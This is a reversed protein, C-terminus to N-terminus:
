ARDSEATERPRRPIEVVVTGALLDGLRQSRPTLLVLISGVLYAVPLILLWPRLLSRIFAQGFSARRGQESVVIINLGWKGLSQGTLSECALFYVFFVVVHGLVGAPLDEMSGSYSIGLLVLGANYIGEVMCFDIVLAMVRRGWTATTVTAGSRLSVQRPHRSGRFAALVVMPLLCLCAAGNALYWWTLYMAWPSAEFLREPEAWAGDRWRHLAVHSM